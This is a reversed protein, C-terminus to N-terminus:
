AKIIGLVSLIFYVIFFYKM